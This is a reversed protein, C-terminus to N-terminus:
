APIAHASKPLRPRPSVQSFGHLQGSTQVSPWRTRERTIIRIWSEEGALSDFMVAM